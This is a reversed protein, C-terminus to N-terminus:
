YMYIRTEENRACILVGFRHPKAETFRRSPLLLSVLIYIYQYASLACFLLVLITNINKVLEITM